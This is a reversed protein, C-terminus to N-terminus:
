AAAPSPEISQRGDASLTRALWPLSEDLAAHLTYPPNVVFMGSGYLGYGDAAPRGVDLTALLWPRDGAAAKLRDPLQRAERRSLRPIWIAYLGTAFRKLGEALAGPVAAYDGQTEYSPDILVLGRRSAPPLLAKLGAFGDSEAVRVRGGAGDLNGRLTQCDAPHREFLRITDGERSMSWAFWPSGPYNHLQGDANLRAIRQRYDRVPEPLDDAPLDWIRGIGERWEALKEGTASQLPYLGAGAHTDIVWYATEKRNLHVLCQLLVLHKLVDAHNGAHFAHRYSLM